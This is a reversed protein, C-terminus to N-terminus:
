CHGYFDRPVKQLSGLRIRHQLWDGSSPHQDLPETASWQVRGSIHLQEGRQLAARAHEVDSLVPRLRSRIASPPECCLAEFAEDQTLQREAALESTLLLLLQGLQLTLSGRLLSLERRVVGDLALLLEQELM